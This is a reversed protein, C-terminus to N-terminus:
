GTQTSQAARHKAFLLKGKTTNNDASCSHQSVNKTSAAHERALAQVGAHGAMCASRLALM